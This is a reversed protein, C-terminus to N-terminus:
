LAGERIKIDTIVAYGSTGTNRGISFMATEEDDLKFEFAVHGANTTQIQTSANKYLVLGDELKLYKGM